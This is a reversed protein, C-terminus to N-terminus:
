HCSRWPPNSCRWSKKSFEASVSGCEHLILQHIFSFSNTFVFPLLSFFPDSNPVDISEFIETFSGASCRSVHYTCMIFNYFEIIYVYYRIYVYYGIYIHRYMHLYIYIYLIMDYPDKIGLLGIGQVLSM